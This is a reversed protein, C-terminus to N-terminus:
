QMPSYHFLMLTFRYRDVAVLGGSIFRQRFLHSVIRGGILASRILEGLLEIIVGGARGDHITVPAAGSCFLTVAM